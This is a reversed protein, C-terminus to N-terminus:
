ESHITVRLNPIVHGSTSILQRVSAGAHPAKRPVPGPRPSGAPTASRPVGYTRCALSRTRPRRIMRTVPRLPVQRPLRVPPRPRHVQSRPRLQLFGPPLDRLVLPEPVQDPLDRLHVLRDARGARRHRDLAPPHHRERSPLPFPPSRSASACSFAASSPRSAPSAALTRPQPSAPISAASATIRAPRSRSPPAHQLLQQGGVAPVASRADRAAPPVLRFEDGVPVLDDVRHEARDGQCPGPIVARGAPVAEGRAVGLEADVPSPM